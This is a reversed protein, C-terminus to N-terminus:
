TAETNITGTGSGYDDSPMVTLGQKHVQAKCAGRYGGHDSRAEAAVVAAALTNGKWSAETTTPDNGAEKNLPNGTSPEDNAQVSGDIGLRGGEM